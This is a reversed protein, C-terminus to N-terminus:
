KTLFKFVQYLLYFMNKITPQITVLKHWVVFAKKWMKQIIYCNVLGKLHTVAAEPHAQFVDAYETLFYNYFLTYRKASDTYFGVDSMRKAGHNVYVNVYSDVLAGVKWGKKLTKCVLAWDSMENGIGSIWTGGIDEFVHRRFMLTPTGCIIPNAIAQPLLDSGSLYATHDYLRKKTKDDYYTMTGYIFGYDDSLSQILQLQKELKEPRYEDDDDLFTIYEGKSLAFAQATQVVPGGVPVKIYKIKPDNYSKVVDETNDDGGDAIIHEYNQYTQNRISEICRHILGARNKTDTIITILPYASM